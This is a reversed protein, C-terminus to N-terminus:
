VAEAEAKRMISIFKDFLYETDTPGPAGEPHFQVSFVPLIKHEIGEISNDNLNIHTVEISKNKISETKVTFGHNQSTIFARDMQRDYVGHNGGRHGYKMKYTEGGLALAILQHGLCIGFTPLLEILEKVNQVVDPLEGPDGPGNSLLLGDPKVKLINAAKTNYPFVYIDCGRKRLNELINKKIGFDMVAVRLGKGEIHYGDKTSVKAVFGGETEGKGKKGDNVLLLELEAISLEQNTIICKMAGTERIKKTINRTDVDYIGVIELRKFVEDITEECMYNSPEFSIDKVIFGKAHINGSESELSNFGYNGILPYTMNIIQGAYSPDTLIEQYGSMSTNFVLEGVTTGRKGFTKGRYITGDQLYIMAKEKMNVDVRRSDKELGTVADSLEVGWVHSPYISCFFVKWWSPSLNYKCV